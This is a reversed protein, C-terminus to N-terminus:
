DKHPRKEDVDNIKIYRSLVFGLIFCLITFCFAFIYFSEEDFIDTFKPIYKSTIDIFRKGASHKESGMEKLKATKVEGNSTKEM